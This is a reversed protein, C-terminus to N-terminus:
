DEGGQMLANIEEETMGSTDIGITKDPSINTRNDVTKMDRILWQISSIICIALIIILVILLKRGLSKLVKM